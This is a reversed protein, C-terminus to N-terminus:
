TIKNKTKKTRCRKDIIWPWKPVIYYENTYPVKLKFIYGIGRKRTKFLLQLAKIKM